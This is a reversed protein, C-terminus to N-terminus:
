LMELYTLLDARASADLDLGFPHGPVPGPRVGGTYGPSLRAPDFMAALSGVAGDHMLLGRAAVGHLSPVQYTGTGRDASLGLRPDTGVVALAVPPGSLADPVHCGACSAAFVSEGRAGAAPLPPQSSALSTLYAALALAVLRPPRVTQGHSVVLLTEIRIALTVRDLQRVTADAQLHSQWATKRLDPIRVPEVGSLTTVDLRGRGWAAYATVNSSLVEGGDILMRGLDFRENALGAVLAGNRITSHCTSCTVAFGVGGGPLEVRQVGGLGHGADLWLGYDPSDTALAVQAPVIQTPYHFFAAEGLEVLEADSEPDASLALATATASLPANPAAGRDLIPEGRPNYEPLADWGGHELAYNALRLRSYGNDPNVLAAELESRRLERDGLYGSGPPPSTCGAIAVIVWARV